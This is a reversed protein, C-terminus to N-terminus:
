PTVPPAPPVPLGPETHNKIERKTMLGLALMKEQNAPNDIFKLFEVHNKFHIKVDDDLEEFSKKLQYAINKADQLNPEISFDHGVIEQKYASRAAIYAALEDPKYKAILYNLDSLHATHQECMTPCASFDQAIHLTGDKRVTVVDKVVNLTGEFIPESLESKRSM